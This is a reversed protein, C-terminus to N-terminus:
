TGVHGTVRDTPLRAIDRVHMRVLRMNRALAQEALLNRNLNRHGDRTPPSYHPPQGRAHSKSPSTVGQTVKESRQFRGM